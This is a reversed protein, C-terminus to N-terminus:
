ELAPLGHRLLLALKQFRWAYRKSIYDLLGVQRQSQVRKRERRILGRNIWLWMMAPFYIRRWPAFDGKVLSVSIGEAFLFGCHLITFPVWTIGPTCIIVVAARNRESLYRRRHNTVLRNHQIRGGGLSMGQWHLYGTSQVVTTEIGRIWAHACLFLDEGISEMWEPFGGLTLWDDRSMWLCAGMVYAVRRPQEGLYPLPVHFPDLLCGRDVVAGTSWDYQPLGLIKHTGLVTAQEALTRLADPLLAADNNLLLVFKGKARAVMRNNAICFGVNTESQILTVQPYSAALSASDDTSADDHVLIEVEFDVHQNIISALCRELLKEGNFNAICVTVFPAKLEPM